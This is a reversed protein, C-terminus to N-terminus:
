YDRVTGDPQIAGMRDILARARVYPDLKWYTQRFEAIVSERRTKLLSVAEKEEETEASSAAHIWAATASVMKLGVMMREFMIADGEAKNHIAANEEPDPEIYKYEFDEDGGLEKPIRDRPIFKDLDDITNTFCVKSAVVPDMWGHIIKWIGSFIWPANHILLLGLSEPYNAEFCQIIFKVPSYEMNRLSFGTMDFVITGTEVPPAILIRTSEIVHVIYRELAAQTQAGPKHLRVRVVNVPRGERDLGHLYSKGMELQAIFDRGEKQDAASLKANHSLEWAHLEGKLVIDDEVEMSKRWLLASVMMSFAKPIDWKRARLFRLLLTDPHEQKIMKLLAFCMEALNMKTLVKEISKIESEKIGAKRLEVFLTRLQETTISKSSLDQLIINKDAKGVLSEVKDLSSQTDVGNKDAPTSSSPTSKTKLANLLGDISPEQINDLLKLLDNPSGEPVPVEYVASLTLAVVTFLLTWFERLKGDEGPTLNYVHGTLPTVTM